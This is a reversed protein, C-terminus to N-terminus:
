RMIVTKIYRFLLVVSYTKFDVNKFYYSAASYRGAWYLQNFVHTHSSKIENKLDNYFVHKEAIDEISIMQLIKLRGYLKGVIDVKGLASNSRNNTHIVINVLARHNFGVRCYLYLKRTFHSDESKITRSHLTIGGCAEYAARSLSQGSPFAPQYSLTKLFLDDKVYTFMQNNQNFGSEWFFKPASDFKSSNIVNDAKLTRFNTIVCDVENKMIVAYLEQLYQPDWFDDSDM